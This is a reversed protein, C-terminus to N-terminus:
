SKKTTPRGSTIVWFLVENNKLDHWHLSSLLLMSAIALLEFLLLLHLLSLMKKWNHYHQSHYIQQRLWPFVLSNQIGKSVKEIKVPMAVKAGKSTTDVQDVSLIGQHLEHYACIYEHARWSFKRVWETRLVDQTQYKRVIEWFTEKKRKKSLPM